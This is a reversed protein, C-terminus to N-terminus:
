VYEVTVRVSEIVPQKTKDAIKGNNSSDAVAKCAEVVKDVVAM